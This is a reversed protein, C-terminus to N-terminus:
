NRKYIKVLEEKRKVVIINVWERNKANYVKEIQKIIEDDGIKCNEQIDLIFNDAQEKKSKIATDITNKGNGNIEKLDFRMGRFYYDPVKVNPPNSIRPNMEIEGGLTNKLWNAVNQENKSPKFTVGKNDVRYAIKTKNDIFEKDNLKIEHSNPTANEKWNTTIDQYNMKRDKETINKNIIVSKNPKTVKEVNERSFNRILNNEKTFKKNKM